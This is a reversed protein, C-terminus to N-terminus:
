KKEIPIQLIEYKLANEVLSIDEVTMHLNEIKFRREM